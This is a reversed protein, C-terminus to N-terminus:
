KSLTWEIAGEYDIAASTVVIQKAARPNLEGFQMFASDQISIEGNLAEFTWIVGRLTKLTVKKNDDSLNIEINPAIHFQASFPIFKENKSKIWNDFVKRQNISESKITDLGSVLNGNSSMKIKRHHIVGHTDNYGDHSSVIIDNNLDNSHEVVPVIKTRKNGPSSNAVCVGSHAYLKQSFDLWEDGFINGPGINVILEEFGSSLEFSLASFSSNSKMLQEGGDLILVTKNKIVRYYDMTNTKIKINPLKISSLIQDICGVDGRGGGHFHVLCGNGLRLSRIDVALAEMIKKHKKLVFKNAKIAASNSWSLMMLISFLEEPNRTRINGNADVCRSAERAIKRLASKLFFKKGKLIASCYILGSLAELRKLNSTESKYGSFLFNTQQGLLKFFIKKQKTTAKSLLMQSHNIFRVVRRGTLQPKWNNGNGYRDIWEWLWQRALDRTFKSGEAALDDLWAFGHLEDEYIASPVNIDWISTNPSEILHGMFLFLGNKLQVGREYSGITYPEPLYVFSKTPLSIKSRGVAITNRINYGSISM